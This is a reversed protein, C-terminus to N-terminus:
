SSRLVEAGKEDKGSYDMGVCEWLQGFPFGEDANLEFVYLSHNRVSGCFSCTKFTQFEGGWVGKILEYSEGPQIKSGCECCIHQKNATPNTLWIADVNAMTGINCM